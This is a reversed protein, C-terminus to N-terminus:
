FPYKGAQSGEMIAKVIEANKVSGSTRDFIEGTDWLFPVMGREKGFQSVCKNFYARSALNKEKEVGTLSPWNMIAGYEGSVVPIGKDVFQSKMKDFQTKMHSEDGWTSNRDSGEIFNDKGWFYAIKGWSEDKDMGCFNWPDYYHIEAMLRDPEPDSPITKMLEVTKDINTAPGQFILTRHKNNGGAARVADVFAQEYELLVAMEKEKLQDQKSQYPENTGAFLLRENYAGLREAIQSWLAKQKPLVKDKSEENVNEELWGGDWHINVIAYMDNGTIWGVVEDVRDLWVPDITHNAPDIIHSDWACPVRVANFGADKLGKIYTENVKPNGWGTEGGPVEMTNGINIGAFMDAAIQRANMGLLAQQQGAEQSIAVTLPTLDKSDPTIVISATRRSASSNRGVSFSFTFDQMARTEDISIWSATAEAKFEVNSALKLERRGGEAPFVNEAAILSAPDLQITPKAKQHLNVNASNQGASVTAISTRENGDPNPLATVIIKYINNLSGQVSTEGVSVWADAVSVQPKVASLVTIINDGGEMPFDLDTVTCKFDGSIGSPQPDDNDGCAQLSLIFLGSILSFLLKKM